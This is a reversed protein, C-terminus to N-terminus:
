SLQPTFNIRSTKVDHSEKFGVSLKKKPQKYPNFKGSSDTSVSSVSFMSNDTERQEDLKTRRTVFFCGKKRAKNSSLRAFCADIKSTDIMRFKKSSSQEM